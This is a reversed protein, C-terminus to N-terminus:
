YRRVFPNARSDENADARGTALATLGLYILLVYFFPSV